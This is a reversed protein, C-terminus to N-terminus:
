KSRTVSLKSVELVPAWDQIEDRLPFAKSPLIWNKQIQADLLMYSGGLLGNSLSMGMMDNNM